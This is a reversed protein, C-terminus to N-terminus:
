EEGEKEGTAGNEEKSEDNESIEDLVEVYEKSLLEDIDNKKVKFEDGANIVTKDYKINVLAKVKYLKQKAM